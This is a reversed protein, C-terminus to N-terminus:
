AHSRYVEREGKTMDRASIVRIRRRRITFVVFLLRRRNTRGLAYYRQESISHVEDDTAVLPQNFFIEEAEARSVRHREWNKDANGVDWQFGTCGRLQELLDM